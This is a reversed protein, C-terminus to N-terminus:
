SGKENLNDVIASDSVVAEDGAILMILERLDPDDPRMDMASRPADTVCVDCFRRSFWNAKHVYVRVGPPRLKWWVSTAHPLLEVPVEQVTAWNVTFVDLIFSLRRRFARFTVGVLGGIATVAMVILAEIHELIEVM